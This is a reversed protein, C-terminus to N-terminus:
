RPLEYQVNVRVYGSSEREVTMSWLRQGPLFDFPIIRLVDAAAQRPYDHDTQDLVLYGVSNKGPSAALEVVRNESRPMALLGAIFDALGEDGNERLWDAYAARPADDGPSERITRLLARQDSM